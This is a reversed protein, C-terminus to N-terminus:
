HAPRNPPTAPRNADAVEWRSGTSGAEAIQGNNAAIPHDANSAPRAATADVSEAGGCVLATSVPAAAYPHEDPYDSREPRFDAASQSPTHPLRRYQTPCRRATKCYRRTVRAGVAIKAANHECRNGQNARAACAPEASAGTPLNGSAARTQLASAVSRRDQIKASPRLTAGANKNLMGM